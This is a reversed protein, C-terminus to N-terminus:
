CYQKLAAPMCGHFCWSPILCDRLSAVAQALMEPISREPWFLADGTVKYVTRAHATGEEAESFCALSAKLHICCKKLLRLM